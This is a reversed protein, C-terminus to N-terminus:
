IFGGGMPIFSLLATRIDGAKNDAPAQRLSRVPYRPILINVCIDAPDARGHLALIEIRGAREYAGKSVTEGFGIPKDELIRFFRHVFKLFLILFKLHLNDLQFRLYLIITLFLSDKTDGWSVAGQGSGRAYDGSAYSIGSRGDGHDDDPHQCYVLLPYM